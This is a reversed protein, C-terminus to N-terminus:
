GRVKSGQVQRIMNQREVPFACKCTDLPTHQYVSIFGSQRMLQEQSEGELATELKEQMNECQTFVRETRIWVKVRTCDGVKNVRCRKDEPANLNFSPQVGERQINWILLQINGAANEQSIQQNKNQIQKTKKAKQPVLSRHKPVAQEWVIITEM